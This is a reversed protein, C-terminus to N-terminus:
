MVAPSYSTAYTTSTRSLRLVCSCLSPACGQQPPWALAMFDDQAAPHAAMDPEVLDATGHMPSLSDVDTVDLLALHSDTSVIVYQAVRWSVEKGRVGRRYSRGRGVAVSSREKWLGPGGGRQEWVGSSRLTSGGVLVHGRGRRLCEGHAVEVGLVAGGRGASGGAYDIVISGMTLRGSWDEIEMGIATNEVRVGKM